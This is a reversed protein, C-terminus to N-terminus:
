ARPVPPVGRADDGDYSLYELFLPRTALYEALTMHEASLIRHPPQLHVLDPDINRWIADAAADIAGLEEESLEGSRTLFVLQLDFPPVESAPLNVRVEHIARSLALGITPHNADLGALAQEVPWQFVKVMADPLAPRDYRRALWQVFRALREQSGPWPSPTIGCLAQKTLLLRYKAQAVLGRAPDVQFYRASNREIRALFQSGLKFPKCLLAEVHPEESDEAVLDCDQTVLVCAENPKLRRTFQAQAEDSGPAAADMGLLRLAPSRFIVGQRWGAGFLKAGLPLDDTASGSM